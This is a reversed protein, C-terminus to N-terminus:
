LERYKLSESDRLTSRVFSLANMFEEVSDCTVTKEKGSESYLVFKRSIPDVICTKLYDDQM